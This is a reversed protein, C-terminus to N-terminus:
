NEVKRIIGMLLSKIFVRGVKYKSLNNMNYVIVQFKCLFYQNTTFPWLIFIITISKHIKLQFINLMVNLIQKNVNETKKEIWKM